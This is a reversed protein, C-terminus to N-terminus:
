CAFTWSTDTGSSGSSYSVPGKLGCGFLQYSLSSDTSGKTVVTINNDVHSVKVSNPIPAFLFAIVVLIAIAAMLGSM